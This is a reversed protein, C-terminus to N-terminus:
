VCRSTYLLCCTVLPVGQTVTLALANGVAQVFTYNGNNATLGSGNIAYSGVSSSSTAATGFTLTGTTSNGETDTGMFGSVSGSLVAYAARRIKDAIASDRICM